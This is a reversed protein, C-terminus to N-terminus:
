PFSGFFVSASLSIQLHNQLSQKQFNEAQHLLNRFDLRMAFRDPVWFRFGALFGPGSRNKQNIQAGTLDLTATKMLHWGAGLLFDFHLVNRETLSMKINYPSFVYGGMVSWKPAEVFSSTRLSSSIKEAIQNKTFDSLGSQIWSFSPLELSHRRNVHYTLAGSAGYSQSLSSFPASFVGLNLEVKHDRPFRPALIPDRPGYQSDIRYRNLPLSKEDPAEGQGQAWATTLFLSFLFFGRM